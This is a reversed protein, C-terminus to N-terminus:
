STIETPFGLSYASATFPYLIIPGAPKDCVKFSIFDVTELKQLIMRLIRANSILILASFLIKLWPTFKTKAISFELLSVWM